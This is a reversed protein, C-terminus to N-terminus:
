PVLFISLPSYQLGRCSFTTAISRVKLVHQLMDPLLRWAHSMIVILEVDHMIYICAYALKSLLRPQFASNLPVHLSCTPLTSLVLHVQESQRM